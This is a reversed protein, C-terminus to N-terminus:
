KHYFAQSSSGSLPKCLFKGYQMFEPVVRKQMDIKTSVAARKCWSPSQFKCLALSAKHFALGCHKPTEHEEQVWSACRLLPRSWSSWSSAVWCGRLHQKHCWETKGCRNLWRSQWRGGDSVLGWKEDSMVCAISLWPPLFAQEIGFCLQKPWKYKALDLALHM